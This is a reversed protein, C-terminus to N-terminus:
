RNSAASKFADGGLFNERIYVITEHLTEAPDRPAFGLEARAKGDDLYWFYEAMEVAEAEVPPAMNWQRFLADV